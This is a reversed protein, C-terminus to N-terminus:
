AMRLVELIHAAHENLFFHGGPLSQATFPGSTHASWAAMGEASTVPDASGSFAFLPCACPTREPQPCYDDVMKFDARLMPLLLEMMEPQQLVERPTGGIDGLYDIFMADTMHEVRRIARPFGPASCGSVALGVPECDATSVRVAEYALLAGMSHGFFLTPMPRLTQLGAAALRAAQVLDTLPTELLRRERGPLLLAVLEVDPAVESTWPRYVSVGGGAFPFCALRRTAGLPQNLQVWELPLPAAATGTASGQHATDHVSRMALNHFPATRRDDHFDSMLM